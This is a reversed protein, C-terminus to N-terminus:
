YKSEHAFTSYFRQQLPLCLDTKQSIFMFLVIKM